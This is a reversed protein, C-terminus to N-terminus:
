TEFIIQDTDWNTDRGSQIYSDFDMSIRNAFRTTFDIWPYTDLPLWQRFILMICFFVNEKDGEGM